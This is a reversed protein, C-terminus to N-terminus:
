HSQDPTSERHVIVGNPYNTSLVTTNQLIAMLDQSRRERRRNLFDCRENIRTLMQHLERDGESRRALLQWMASENWRYFRTYISKISGFHTPMDAWYKNNLIVWLVAEVFARYDHKTLNLRTATSLIHAVKDWQDDRLKGTHKLLKM